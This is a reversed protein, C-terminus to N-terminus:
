NFNEAVRWSRQSREGLHVKSTCHFLVAQGECDRVHGLIAM